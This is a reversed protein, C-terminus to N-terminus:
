VRRRRRRLRWGPGGPWWRGRGHNGPKGHGSLFFRRRQVQFGQDGASPEIANADDGQEEGDGIEQLQGEVVVPNAGRAADGDADEQARQHERPALPEERAAVGIERFADGSESFRGQVNGDPGAALVIGEVAAVDAEDGHNDDGGHHGSQREAAIGLADGKERKETSKESGKKYARALVLLDDEKGVEENKAHAHQQDAGEALPDGQRRERENEGLKIEPAPIRLKIVARAGEFAGDNKSRQKEEQVRRDGHNAGDTKRVEALDSNQNKQGVREGIEASEPDEEPRAIAPNKREKGQRERRPM